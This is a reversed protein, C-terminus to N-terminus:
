FIIARNQATSQVYSQFVATLGANTTGVSAGGPLTAKNASADGTTSAAAYTANPGLIGFVLWKQRQLLGLNVCQNKSDAFTTVPTTAGLVLSTSLVQTCYFATRNNIFGTGNPSLFNGAANAASNYLWSNSTDVSFGTM